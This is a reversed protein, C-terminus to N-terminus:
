NSPLKFKIPFRLVVDATPAPDTPVKFHIFCGLEMAAPGFGVDPTTESIWV